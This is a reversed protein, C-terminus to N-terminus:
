YRWAQMGVEMNYFINDLRIILDSITILAAMDDCPIYFLMVNRLDLFRFIIIIIIIMIIKTITILM